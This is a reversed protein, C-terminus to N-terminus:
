LATCWNFSVLTTTDINRPDCVEYAKKGGASDQYLLCNGKFGPNPIHGLFDDSASAMDELLDDSIYRKSTLRLRALRLKPTTDFSSCLPSDQAKPKIVYASAISEENLSLSVMPKPSALPTELEASSENIKNAPVAEGQIPASLGIAFQSVGGSYTGTAM